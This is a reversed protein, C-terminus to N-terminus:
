VNGGSDKKVDSLNLQCLKSEKCIHCLFSLDSIVSELNLETVSDHRVRQSGMFRLM